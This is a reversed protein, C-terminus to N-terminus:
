KIWMIAKKVQEDLVKKLELLIDTKLKMRWAEDRSMQGQIAATLKSRQDKLIDNIKTNSLIWERSFNPLDRKKIEEKSAEVGVAAVIAGVIGAIIQGALPLHLLAIGAGGSVKAVIIGAVISVFALIEGRSIFEDVDLPPHEISSVGAAIDRNRLDLVSRPIDFTSCIPDTFESLEPLLVHDLWDDLKDKAEESSIRGLFHKIRKETDPAIDNLTKLHGERWALLPPKIAYSTLEKALSAALTDILKPIEKELLALFEDSNSLEEVAKKLNRALIDIRGIRTLGKAITFEPEIGRIPEKAEKFVKKCLDSIFDMRSAGGTLIILEPQSDGMKIRADKLAALFTHKWNLHNLEEIKTNLAKEMEMQHIYPEFEISPKFTRFKISCDVPIDESAYLSPASFYKEKGERCAILCQRKFHPYQEFTKELRIKEEPKDRALRDLTREFIIKEILGAGINLGFDKLPKAELNMIVTFDTTSSGIDIILVNKALNEIELEIWKAEKMQLFAARSEKEVKVHAMGAEKLINAYTEQEISSWGSPSGVIFLTKDRGRIQRTEELIDLYKKIFRKIITQHESSDLNQHMPKFGVHLETIGNTKLAEEGILDGRDPKFALATIQTKRAFIELMEPETNDAMSFVKSLATEGHGFDFGVIEINEMEWVEMNM